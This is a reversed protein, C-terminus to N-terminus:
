FATFTPQRQECASEFRLEAYADRPAVEPAPSAAHEIMDILAFPMRDNSRRVVPGTHDGIGAPDRHDAVPARVEITRWDRGGRDRACTTIFQHQMQAINVIGARLRLRLLAEEIGPRHAGPLDTPRQVAIMFHVRSAERIEIFDERRKPLWRAIESQLVSMPQEHSEVRGVGIVPEIRLLDPPEFRHHVIRSLLTFHDQERMVLREGPEGPLAGLKLGREGIQEPLSRDGGPIPPVLVVADDVVLMFAESQAAATDPMAANRRRPLGLHHVRPSCLAKGADRPLAEGGVPISWRAQNKIPGIWQDLILFIFKPRVTIKRELDISRM